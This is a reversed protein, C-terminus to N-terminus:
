LAGWQLDRLALPSAIVQMGRSADLLLVWAQKDVRAEVLISTYLVFHTRGSLPDMHVTDVLQIDGLHESAVDLFSGVRSSPKTASADEQVPELLRPLALLAERARSGWAICIIPMFPQLRAFPMRMPKLIAHCARYRARELREWGRDQLEKPPQLMPALVRWDQSVAVHLAMRHCMVSVLQKMQLERKSFHQTLSLGTLLYYFLGNEVADKVAPVCSSSSSWRAMLRVAASANHSHSLRVDFMGLLGVAKENLTPEGPREEADKVNPALSERWLSREEPILLMNANPLAATLTKSGPALEASQLNVQVDIPSALATGQSRNSATNSRSAVPASAEERFDSPLLGGPFLSKMLRETHEGKKQSSSASSTKPEKATQATGTLVEELSSSLSTRGVLVEPDSVMSFQKSLVEELINALVVSNGFRDREGFGTAATRLHRLAKCEFKHAVQHTAQCLESCYWASECDRCYHLGATITPGDDVGKWDMNTAGSAFAAGPSEPVVKRTCFASNACRRDVTARFLGLSPYRSGIKRFRLLRPGLTEAQKQDDPYDWYRTISALEDHVCMSDGAASDLARSERLPKAIAGGLTELGVANGPWNKSVQDSISLISDWPLFDRRTPLNAAGVYMLGLESQLPEARAAMGLLCQMQAPTVQRSISEGVLHEFLKSEIEYPWVWEASARSNGVGEAVTPFSRPTRASQLPLMGEGQLTEIRSLGSLHLRQSIEPLMKSTLKCIPAPKPLQMTSALGKPVNRRVVGNPSMVTRPRVYRSESPAPPKVPYSGPAALQRATQPPTPGLGPLPMSHKTEASVQQAQAAATKRQAAAGRSNSTRERLKQQFLDECHRTQIYSHPAAKLLTDFWTCLGLLGVGNCLLCRADIADYASRGTAKAFQWPTGVFVSIKMKLPVCSDPAPHWTPSSSANNLLQSYAAAQRGGEGWWDADMRRVSYLTVYDRLELDLSLDHRRVKLQRLEKDISLQEELKRLETGEEYVRQRLFDSIHVRLAQAIDAPASDKHKGPRKFRKTGMATPSSAHPSGEFAEASVPAVTPQLDRAIASDRAEHANFIASLCRLQPMLYDWIVELAPRQQGRLPPIPSDFVAVQQSPSKSTWNSRGGERDSHLRWSFTHFPDPLAQHDYCWEVPDVACPNVRWTEVKYFDQLLPQWLLRPDPPNMRHVPDNLMAPEGEPRLLSYLEAQPEASGQSEDITQKGPPLMGTLTWFCRQSIGGNVANRFAHRGHTIKVAEICAAAQVGELRERADKHVQATNLVHLKRKQCTSTANTKGPSAASSSLLPTLPEPDTSIASVGDDASQRSLVPEPLDSSGAQAGEQCGARAKEAEGALHGGSTALWGLWVQQLRFLLLSTGWSRGPRTISNTHLWIEPTDPDADKESAAFAEAYLEEDHKTAQHLGDDLELWPFAHKMFSEDSSALILLCLIRDVESRQKPTLMRCFVVGTFLACLSRDRASEKMTSKKATASFSPSGGTRIEEGVQKAIMLCVMAHAVREVCPAQLHINVPKPRYKWHICEANQMAFASAREGLGTMTALVDLVGRSDLFLLELPDQGQLSGITPTRNFLSLDPFGATLDIPWPVAYDQADPCVSARNETQDNVPTVVSSDFLEAATHKAARLGEIRRLLHQNELRAARKRNEGDFRFALAISAEARELFCFFTTEELSSGQTATRTDLECLFCEALRRYALAREESCFGQLASWFLYVQLDELADRTEGLQLLAGARVLFPRPLTPDLALIERCTQELQWFDGGEEDEAELRELLAQCRRKRTECYALCSRELSGEVGPLEIRRSCLGALASALKSYTIGLPTLSLLTMSADRVLDAVPAGLEAFAEPSLVQQGSRTRSRLRQMRKAAEAPRADVFLEEMVPLWRSAATALALGLGPFGKADGTVDRLVNGAQVETTDGTPKSGDDVLLADRILLRKFEVPLDLWVDGAVFPLVSPLSTSPSTASPNALDASKTATQCSM